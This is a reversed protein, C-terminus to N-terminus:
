RKLSERPKNNLDQFSLKAGKDFWHCGHWAPACNKAIKTVSLLLDLVAEAFVLIHLTLANLGTKM